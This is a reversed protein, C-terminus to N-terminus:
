ALELGAIKVFHRFDADRTILQVRHDICCSAILSDALRARLGRALVRGRLHGAREWFGASLELLPLALFLKAAAAPLRPNSLLACLVPPPLV